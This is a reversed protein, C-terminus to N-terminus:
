PVPLLEIPSGIPCDGDAAPACMGGSLPGGEFVHLTYTPAIGHDARAMKLDYHRSGSWAHAWDNFNHHSSYWCIASPDDIRAVEGLPGVHMGLLTFETNALSGPGDNRREIRVCVSKDATELQL